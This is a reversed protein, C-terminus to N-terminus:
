PPCLTYVSMAYNAEYLAKDAWFAKGQTFGAALFADVTDRQKEALAKYETTERKEALCKAFDPITGSRAVYLVQFDGSGLAAGTEVSAIDRAAAAPLVIDLTEVHFYDGFRGDQEGTEYGEVRYAKGVLKQTGATLVVRASVSLKLAKEREPKQDKFLPPLLTERDLIRAEEGVGVASPDSGYVHRANYFSLMEAERAPFFARDLYVPERPLGGGETKLTMKVGPGIRYSGALPHGDKDLLLVYSGAAEQAVAPSCLVFVTLSLIALRAIMGRYRM